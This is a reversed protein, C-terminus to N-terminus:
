FIRSGDYPSKNPMHPIGGFNLVNRFKKACTSVQGDCGPYLTIKMGVDLGKTGGMLTLRNAQHLTIARMETVGDADRWEIFGANFWQAPISQPLTVTIAAGDLAEIVIDNVAFQKRNVRCDSDYLSYPCNRGWSLRLGASNMTNSLSASIIEAKEISPRKVELVTGIWVVRIENDQWHTRYIKVSISQSPPVGRFLRAIPNHSAVIITTNEGDTKGADTITTAQWRQGNITLDMDADCFRYIKENDGRVFEYLNIPQGDAISFTKALYSM